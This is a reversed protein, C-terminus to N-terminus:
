IDTLRNTEYIHEKTDYKFNWMYTIDYSIESKSWESLLIIELNSCIVNNWEKNHSLLMENYIYLTMIENKTIASYYKMIYIVTNWEKNHSLLIENYIYIYFSMIETKTISLLMANYASFAIAVWELVRAQIYIYRMKKTGGDTLPCEPQEWTQSNHITSSHVYPHTYRKSNHSEKSIHGPTPSGSWMAVKNKTKKPVEMSNEM